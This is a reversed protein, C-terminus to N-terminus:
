PNGCTESVLWISIIQNSKNVMYGVLSNPAIHELPMDNGDPTHFTLEPSLKKESDDIVAKTADIRMLCGYGDFGDPYHQPLKWEGKKGRTHGTGAMALFVCFLIMIMSFIKTIRQQKIM